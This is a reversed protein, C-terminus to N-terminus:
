IYEPQRREAVREPTATNGAAGDGRQEAMLPGTLQVASSPTYRPTIALPLILSYRADRYPITELYAIEVTVSAQPAINAVSTTFMNPREQDVLSARRGESRALEYIARAKDRQQIEGRITREGVHM